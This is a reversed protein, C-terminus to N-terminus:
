FNARDGWAEEDESESVIQKKMAVEILRLLSKQRASIFSEYNDARILAADILHTALYADLADPLVKPEKESGNELARLYKSPAQGGIIRNTRASLPTKNVISDYVKKDKGNDMCWKQPFIHHIDVAEDFFTTHEFKQGSRLDKAGSQMLLANVGKYAASLRMRMTLLRDKHFNADLVTKPKAGGDFWLPVELFDTGIRTDVASGYLEGFVGCWYWETLQDRIAVSEWRNGIDALIAALPIIQTQYPLDRVYFINLMHLFKAARQFGLLAIERYKLYAALPLNLLAARKGTVQPLEKGQKGEKIAARRLDRTHFLSIVQLFDTNDVKSLVGWKEEGISNLSSIRAAYGANVKGDGYWDDRLKHGEAAFMATVLEFADLAKGGTNVKEFVTCVAEKSTSKGLSIVPVDYGKFINVFQKEFPVIVDNWLEAFTGNSNLYTILDTQWTSWNFLECLPFVLNSFEDERKQLNLGEPWNESVKLKKEEPVSFIAESQDIDPDIAKRIDVYFWRKIKKHKVTTTEVVEGRMAVQYISTIRQQGDLLLEEPQFDTRENVGQIPRPHFNVEGGTKLTMIAGIPFARSISALLDIIRDEDWVWSRQFDPLQLKGNRAEKLLDELSRPNTTFTTLEM